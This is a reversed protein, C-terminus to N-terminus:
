KKCHCILNYLWAVIFGGIFADVFGFLGGIVSGIMTAEYGIYLHGMAIVFPVGYTFHLALLGMILLSVGWTIGLALGLSVPCIKYKTM